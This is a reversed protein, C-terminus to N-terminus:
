FAKMLATGLWDRSIDKGGHRGVTRPYTSAAPVNRHIYRVTASTAKTIALKSTGYAVKIRWKFISRMNFEFVRIYSMLMPVFIIDVVLLSAVKGREAATHRGYWPSRLPADGSFTVSVMFVVKYLLTTAHINPFISSRHGYITSLVTWLTVNHCVPLSSTTAVNYVSKCVLRQSSESILAKPEWEGNQAFRPSHNTKLSKTQSSWKRVGLRLSPCTELSRRMLYM